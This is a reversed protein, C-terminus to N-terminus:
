GEDDCKKGEHAPTRRGRCEKGVRREESRIVRRRVFASLYDVAIVLLMIAAVQIIVERYQFVRFSLFLEHGIGGAGIFGLVITQRVNVELRYFAQSLVDPII